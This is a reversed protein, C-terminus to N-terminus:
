LIPAAYLDKLPNSNYFHSRTDHTHFTLSIPSKFECLTDAEQLGCKQDALQLWRKM